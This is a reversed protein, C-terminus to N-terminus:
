RRRLLPRSAEREVVRAEVDDEGVADDIQDRVLVGDETLDISHEYGAPSDLDGIDRDLLGHRLLATALDVEPGTSNGSSQQVCLIYRCELPVAELPDLM